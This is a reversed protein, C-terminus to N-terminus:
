AAPCIARLMRIMQKIGEHDQHWLAEIRSDEIYTAFAEDVWADSAAAEFAEYYARMEHRRVDAM